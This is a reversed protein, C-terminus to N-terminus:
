LMNLECLGNQFPREAATTHVRINFISAVRNEEAIFDGGNDTCIVRLIGICYMLVKDIVECPQKRTIFTTVSFRSWIDLM